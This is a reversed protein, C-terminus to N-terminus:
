LTAVNKQFFEKFKKQTLILDIIKFVMNREEENLQNILNLQEFSQKDEITVEEPIGGEYNLIQDVTMGFLKALLQLEKVSPERNGKELKNYNSAGLGLELAVQKQLMGKQERIERIVLGINM